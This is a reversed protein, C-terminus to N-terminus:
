AKKCEHQAQTTEHEVLTASTAASINDRISSTNDQTTHHQSTYNELSSRIESAADKSLMQLEISYM